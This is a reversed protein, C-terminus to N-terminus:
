SKNPLSSNYIRVHTFNACGGLVVMKIEVASSMFNTNKYKGCIKHWVDFKPSTQSKSRMVIKSFIIPHWYKLRLHEDRICTLCWKRESYSVYNQRKLVDTNLM